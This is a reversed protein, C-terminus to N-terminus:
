CTQEFVEQQYTCWVVYGGLCGDLHLINAVRCHVSPCVCAWLCDCFTLSVYPGVALLHTSCILPALPHNNHVLKYSAYVLTVDYTINRSKDRNFTQLLGNANKWKTYLLYPLHKRHFSHYPWKSNFKATTKIIETMHKTTNIWRQESGIISETQKM